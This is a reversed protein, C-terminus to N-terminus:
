LGRERRVNGAAIEDLMFDNKKILFNLDSLEKLIIDLISESESPIEAYKRIKDQYKKDINKLRSKLRDLSKQSKEYKQQYVGAQGRLRKVKVVVKTKKTTKKASKRTSKRTSKQTSKKAPKKTTAKRKTSKKSTKNKRAKAM